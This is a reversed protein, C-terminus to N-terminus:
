NVRVRRDGLIEGEVVKGSSPNEVRIRDGVRGPELAKGVTEVYLGISEYVLTVVGGRRVVRPLEIMSVTLVRNVEVARAAQRGELAELSTLPLDSIDGLNRRELRVKEPSITEYHALPQSTVIVDDYVQIESDVWFRADEQGNVQASILFHRPGPTVGRTPKLVTLEITGNPLSLPSFSRLLIEVQESRWISRELVHQRVADVVQEPALVQDQRGAMSDNAPLVIPLLLVSIFMMM